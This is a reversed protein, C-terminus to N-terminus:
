GGGHEPHVGSDAERVQSQASNSRWQPHYPSRDVRDKADKLGIRLRQRVMKIAEIKRGKKLVEIEAWTLGDASERCIEAIAEAQLNRAHLWSQGLSELMEQHSGTCFGLKTAAQITRTILRSIEDIKGVEEAIDIM